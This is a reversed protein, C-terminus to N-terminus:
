VVVPELPSASDQAESGGVHVCNRGARKAEYLAADAAEFVMCYDFAEGSPSVAVGFSMTMAQDAHNTNAIASRLEEALERVSHLDAGPVLILFEEGGIRYLLDFARLERRLEYAVSSLVADGTAHGLRDNVGKFKDLDGVIVGVPLRAVRSQEELEAVRHTLANRNLVQTLPDVVAEARYKVDSRMVVTQFMAVALVLTIPAIVLSWNDAVAAADTTFAVALLLAITIVVGLVIGRKSFRAGLTVVPIALWSLTPVTAGGSIAVAVAIILQSCVWAGFLAYEPHELRGISREALGFAVAALVVPVVTWYGLWPGMVVLAAAVVAFTARRVPRLYADMELMRARDVGQPFLWSGQEM